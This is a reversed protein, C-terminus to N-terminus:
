IVFEYYYLKKDGTNILSHEVGAKVFWSSGKKLTIKEDGAIYEGNGDLVIGGQDNDDHKHLPISKDPKLEGYFFQFNERDFINKRDVIESKEFDLDDINNYEFDKEM